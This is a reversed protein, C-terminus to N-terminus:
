KNKTFIENIHLGYDEKGRTTKLGFVELVKICKFADSFFLFLDLSILYSLHLLSRDGFVVNFLFATSGTPARPIM